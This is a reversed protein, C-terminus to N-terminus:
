GERSYRIQEAIDMVRACDRELLLRLSEDSIGAGARIAICTVTEELSEALGDIDM